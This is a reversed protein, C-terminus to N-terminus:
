ADICKVSRQDMAESEPLSGSLLTTLVELDEPAVFHDSPNVHEQLSVILMLYGDNMVTQAQYIELDFYHTM